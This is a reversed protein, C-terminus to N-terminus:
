IVQLARRGEYSIVLGPLFSNVEIELDLVIIERVM